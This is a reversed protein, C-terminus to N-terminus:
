VGLYILSLNVEDATMWLDLVGPFMIPDVVFPISSILRIIMMVASKLDHVARELVSQPPPIKLLYRLLPISVISNQVFSVQMRASESRGVHHGVLCITKKPISLASAKGM